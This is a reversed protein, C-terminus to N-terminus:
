EYKQGEDLATQKAVYTEHDMELIQPLWYDYDAQVAKRGYQNEFINDVFTKM